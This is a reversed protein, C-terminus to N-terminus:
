ARGPKQRYAVNYREESVAFYIILGFLLSRRKVIIKGVKLSFTQKESFLLSCPWAWDDFLSEHREYSNPPSL